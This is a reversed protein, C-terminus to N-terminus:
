FSVNGSRFALAAFSVEPAFSEGAAWFVFGAALADGAGFGLVDEVSLGAAFGSGEFVSGDELAVGAVLDGRFFCGTAVFGVVAVVVAFCFLVALLVVAFVFRVRLGSGSFGLDAVAAVSAGVLFGTEAVELGEAPDVLGAGDLGGSFLVAGADFALGVAGDDVAGRGRVVMPDANVDDALLASTPVASFFGVVLGAGVRGGMELVAGFDICGALLLEAGLTPDLVVAFRGVVAGMELGPVVDLTPLAEVAAFFTVSAAFFTVSAPAAATFVDEALTGAVRSAFSPLSLM